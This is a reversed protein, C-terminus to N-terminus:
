SIFALNVRTLLLAEPSNADNQPSTIHPWNRVAVASRFPTNLMRLQWLSTYFHAPCQCAQKVFCNERPISRGWGRQAPLHCKDATGPYAPSALTREGIGGGGPGRWGGLAKGTRVLFGLSCRFIHPEPPCTFRDSSGKLHETSVKYSAWYFSTQVLPNNDM